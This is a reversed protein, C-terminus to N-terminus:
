KEKLIEIVQQRFEEPVEDITKLNNKVLNTYIGVWASM